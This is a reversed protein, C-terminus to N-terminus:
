EIVGYQPQHHMLALTGVALGTFLDVVAFYLPDATKSMQEVHVQFAQVDPFPGVSLYIWDSDDAAASYAVFLADAHLEPDLPELCCYNGRLVIREPQPCAQWNPVPLGVPYTGM